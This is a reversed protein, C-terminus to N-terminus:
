ESASSAMITWFIIIGLVGIMWPFGGLSWSNFTTTQGTCSNTVITTEQTTLINYGSEVTVSQSTCSGINGTIDPTSIINNTKINNM